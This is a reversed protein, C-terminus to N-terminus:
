QRQNKIYVTTTTPKIHVVSSVAESASAEVVVFCRSLFLLGLGSSLNNQHAISVKTGSATINEPAGKAAKFDSAIRTEVGSAATINNMVIPMSRQIICSLFIGPINCKEFSIGSYRVIPAYAPLLNQM